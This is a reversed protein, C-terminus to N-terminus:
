TARTDKEEGIHPCGSDENSAFMKKTSVLFNIIYMLAKQSVLGFIAGLLHALNASKDKDKSQRPKSLTKHCQQPLRFGYRVSPPLIKFVNIVSKIM